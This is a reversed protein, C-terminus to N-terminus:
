GLIFLDPVLCREYGVWSVIQSAKPDPNLDLLRKALKAATAHNDAKAFINMASRLALRLHNPQLKCHAFYMALELNRRKNAPDNAEVQRREIEIMVGLLYEKTSTVLNRWQINRILSLQLVRLFDFKVEVADDDTSVTVLLLKRLIVRFADEAEPLKNGNLLRYAEKLEAKVSAINYVAVPLVRTASSEEINRRVHLQLPPLSANPSLYVHSARFITIFYQKLSEFGM